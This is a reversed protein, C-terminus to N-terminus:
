KAAVKEVYLRVHEDGRSDFLSVLVSRVPEGPKWDRTVDGDFIANHGGAVFVQTVLKGTRDSIKTAVQTVTTPATKLGDPFAAKSKVYAAFQDSTTAAEWTGAAATGVFGIASIALAITALSKKM